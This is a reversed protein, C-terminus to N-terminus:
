RHKSLLRSPPRPQVRLHQGGRIRGAGAKPVGFCRGNATGSARGARRRGRVPHPTRRSDLAPKPSSPRRGHPAASRRRSRPGSLAAALVSRERLCWSLSLLGSNKWGSLVGARLRRSTRPTARHPTTERGNAALDEGERHSVALWRGDPSWALSPFRFDSRTEALKHEAGGLAPILLLEAHDSGRQRLFAITRGDPSWAPSGDQAPNTTLRLPAGGGILKVYIDFTDQEEGNWAFAVQNGDPSLAPDREIGPYSTLPVARWAPPAPTPRIFWAVVAVVAVAAAAVWPWRRPAEVVVPQPEPAAGNGTVPVLFRYGRRPVTEIFRPSDADDGLVARIQRICFNLGQDFDVVTDHSWIEKQIEERTVVEGTRGALLTLVRFPQPRLKLLVGSKRVQGAKLDLEFTGFQVVAM